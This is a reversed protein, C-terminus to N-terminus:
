EAASPPRAGVVRPPRGHVQDQFIARRSIVFWFGDTQRALNQARKLLTDGIQLQDGASAAAELQGDIAFQNVGLQFGALKGVLLRDEVHELLRTFLGQKRQPSFKPSTPLGCRLCPITTWSFRM